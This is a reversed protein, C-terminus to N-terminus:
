SQTSYLIVWLSLICGCLLTFIGNWRQGVYASSVGAFNGVLLTTATFPSSIGSLIWGATLATVIASPTIGLTTAEPLLPAVVGAVLIPNMGVQGAIPLLWVILVLIAWAPMDSLDFGMQQMGAGLLPSAVTGLYGAMMLLVMESRIGALQVMLYNNVRRRVQRLPNHKATQVAIWAISLLPTVLMVLVLVRVGTLLHSVGLILALLLLLFLLPLLSWWSGQDTPRTPVPISLKPKFLQDLLWGLSVLITGNVLGPLAAQTWSAGPVLTTSILIAFSFPSWPLISIFGRQIALLIRRTRHRRIEDNPERSVNALSMAGLLQIAGYNLLLGFLQGGISLALYRRGPPQQSLFQGCRRIAPSSAAVFKLTTLASFFATIFCANFLASELTAQWHENWVINMLSLLLAVLVFVRRSVAVHFSLLLVLLLLLAYMLPSLSDSLGLERVLVLLSVCLTLLGIAKRTRVPIPSM